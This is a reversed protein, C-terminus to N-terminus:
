RKHLTRRVDVNYLWKPEGKFQNSIPVDSVIFMLPAYNPPHPSIRSILHKFTRGCLFALGVLDFMTVTENIWSTDSSTMSWVLHCWNTKAFQSEFDALIKRCFIKKREEKFVSSVIPLKWLGTKESPTYWCICLIVFRHFNSSLQGDFNRSLWSLFFVRTM